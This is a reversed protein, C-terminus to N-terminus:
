KIIKLVREVKNRPSATVKFKKPPYGSSILLHIQEYDPISIIKRLSKDNNPTVTWNLSCAGIGYRHLSYLFSMSFMGANLAPENREPFCQFLSLDSTIVFLVSALHGFGRNGNQLALIKEKVLNNKIAYIRIPQRNCSSPVNQAIKVCSSIIEDSIEKTNYNRLSHRSLAFQDFSSNAFSFFSDQNFELQRACSFINNKLSIRHIENELDKSLSFNNKKHFDVYENLTKISWIFEIENLNYEKSQYDDLLKVLDFILQQGFGLRPEPMTLGKEIAHYCMALEGRIKEPSNNKNLYNFYKFYRPIDYGWFRFMAGIARLNQYFM